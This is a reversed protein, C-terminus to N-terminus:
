IKRKFIYITVLCLSHCNAVNYNCISALSTLVYNTLSTSRMARGSDALSSWSCGPVVAVGTMTLPSQLRLM